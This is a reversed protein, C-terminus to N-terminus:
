AGDGERCAPCINDYYSVRALDFDLGCERCEVMDPDHEHHNM